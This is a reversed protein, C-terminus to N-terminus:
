SFSLSGRGVHCTLKGRMGGSLSVVARKGKSCERVKGGDAKVVGEGEWRIGLM